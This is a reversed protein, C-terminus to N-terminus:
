RTGGEFEAFYQEMKYATGLPDVAKVAGSVLFLIGVYNQLFSIALNKIRDKAFVLMAITTAVSIVGVWFLLQGLTFSM